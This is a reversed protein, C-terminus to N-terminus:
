LDLPRNGYKKMFDSAKKQAEQFEPSQAVENRDIYVGGRESVRINEWSNKLIKKLKKDEEGPALGLWVLLGM